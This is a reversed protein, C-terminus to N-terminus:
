RAIAVKVLEGNDKCAINIAVKNEHNCKECKFVLERIYSTADDILEPRPGNTTWSAERVGAPMNLKSRSQKKVRKKELGALLKDIVEEAISDNQFGVSHLYKIIKNKGEQTRPKIISRLNTEIWRKSLRPDKTVAATLEYSARLARLEDINKVPVNRILIKSIDFKHGDNILQSLVVVRHRGQIVQGDIREDHENVALVLAQDALWGNVLLSEYLRTRFKKSLDLLDEDLPLPAIRLKRM